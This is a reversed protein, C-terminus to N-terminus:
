NRISESQQRWHLVQGTEDLVKQEKQLEAVLFAKNQKEKLRQFKEVERHAEFLLRRANEMVPEQEVRKLECQHLRGKQEFAFIQWLGLEEPRQRGAERQGELAENFRRQQIACAKVCVELRQAEQAFERQATELTQEALRLSAELRFRFRVM